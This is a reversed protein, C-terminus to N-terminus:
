GPGDSASILDTATLVKDEAVGLCLMGNMPGIHYTLTHDSREFRTRCEVAMEQGGAAIRITLIQRRKPAAYEGARLNWGESKWTEGGTEVKAKGLEFGLVEGGPQSLVAYSGDPFLSVKVFTGEFFAKLMEPPYLKELYAPDDAIDDVTMQNFTNETTKSFESPLDSGFLEAAGTQARVPSVCLALAASLLIWRSM